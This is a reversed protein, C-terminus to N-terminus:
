ASAADAAERAAPATEALDRAAEAVERAAKALQTIRDWANERVLDPAALWGGGVALVSPEALYAALNDPNIGGTPLFRLGAFPAALARLTAPGGLQEAPFFKMVRVGLELASQIETATAVGPFVPLGLEQCHRVVVPSLGPSLVFRAGAQAARDVDERTLVTGAGVLV